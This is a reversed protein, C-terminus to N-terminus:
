VAEGEGEGMGAKTGKGMWPTLGRKLSRVLCTSTRGSHGYYTEYPTTQQRWLEWYAAEVDDFSMWADLERRMRLEDKCAEADYPDFGDGYTRALYCIREQDERGPYLDSLYPLEERTMVRLAENSASENALSSM